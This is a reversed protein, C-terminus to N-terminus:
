VELTSTPVLKPSSTSPHLSEDEDGDFGQLEEYVFISEEMEKDGVCEFVGRPCPSTEDFTVDYSEVIINTEHNFVILDAM